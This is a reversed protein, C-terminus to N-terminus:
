VLLDSVLGMAFIANHATDADADHSFKSLTELINLQPNSVSILALALPVARRIVPEGYRILHGFMRLAMQLFSDSFLLSQFM